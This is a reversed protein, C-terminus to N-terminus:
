GKAMKKLLIIGRDFDLTKSNAIIYIFEPVYVSIDM